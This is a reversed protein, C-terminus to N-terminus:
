DDRLAEVPSIALARRVPLWSAAVAVAASALLVIGLTPLDAVSTDYLYRRALPALALALALGLLTGGGVLRLGGLVVDRSIAAPSAGIAQRVGFERTRAAVAYGQVASVGIAALLATVLGFASFVAGALRPVWVRDAVRDEMTRVDFTSQNPDIRAVSATAAGALARVDGGARVLVYLSGTDYQELPVYVDVSPGASLADHRVDRVVGVITRWPTVTSDTSGLLVREGVPDRGPWLREATARSVLAVRAASDHDTARLLRGRELPIGLVSLAGPSAGRVNVFPNAQQAESTQGVLTIRTDTKPRGDLPLNSILGVATVGPLEALNGLLAREFRAKTALGPYARWGLEVRFTLLSDTRFGPSTASLARFSRVLLGAGAMLVVALGVELLVLASRLRRQYPSASSGRGGAKLSTTLDGRGALLTPLVASLVSALTALVITFIVTETSGRISLWIPFDLRILATLTRLALAGMALGLLAALAALVLAEAVQLRAVGARTAGLALRVSVERERGLARALMLNAVNACAVLLVLGVAVSVLWLYARAEGVYLDRLPRVRYTIGTNSAPFTRQLELAVPVLAQQLQQVSVGDRLRAVGWRGRDARNEYASPEPAIGNSRYVDARGPFAFGPPTVGVIEYGAAGDLTMTHGLIDPRAGFRRQWLGHSIVVKFERTRDLLEPWPAGRQLPVGLVAFLDGTTITSVLEEPAGEGSANYQGQDTYAAVGDVLSALRERMDRVERYSLQAAEGGREAEIRVLRDSAPFPLPALLLSHVVSFIASNPGIGVALTLAAIATFRWERRMTRAALRLDDLFSRLM